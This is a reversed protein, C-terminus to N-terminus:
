CATLGDSATSSELRVSWVRLTKDVSVERSSFTRRMRKPMPPFDSWVSSSTPWSKLTVRSRMRWISAFASLFSRWGERALCSSLKISVQPSTAEGPKFTHAKLRAEWAQSARKQTKHANKSHIPPREHKRSVDPGQRRAFKSKRFLHGKALYVPGRARTAVKHRIRGLTQIARCAGMPGM